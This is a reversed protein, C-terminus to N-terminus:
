TLTAFILTRDLVVTKATKNVTVTFMQDLDSSNVYIVDGTELGDSLSDFYGAGRVTAIADTTRYTAVKPAKGFGTGNNDFDVLTFAM